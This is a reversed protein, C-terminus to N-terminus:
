ARIFKSQVVLSLKDKTASGTPAEEDVVSPHGRREEL